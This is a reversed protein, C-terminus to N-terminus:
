CVSKKESTRSEWPGGFSAAIAIFLSVPLSLGVARYLVLVGTLLALLGVGVEARTAMVVGLGALGSGAAGLMVAFPAFVVIV